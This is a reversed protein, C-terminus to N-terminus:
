SGSATAAIVAVVNQGWISAWRERGVVERRGAM